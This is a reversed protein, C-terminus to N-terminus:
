GEDDRDVLVGLRGDELDGIDTDHLIDQLEHGCQGFLELLYLRKLPWGLECASPKGWDPLRGSFGAKLEFGDRGCAQVNM